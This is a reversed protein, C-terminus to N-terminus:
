FGTVLIHANIGAFFIDVIVGCDSFSLLFCTILINRKLTTVVRLVTNTVTGDGVVTIFTLITHDHMHQNQYQCQHYNMRHHYKVVYQIMEHLQIYMAYLERTTRLIYIM